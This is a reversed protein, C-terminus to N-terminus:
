SAQAPRAGLAQNRNEGSNIVPIRRMGLAAQTFFGRAPVPLSIDCQSSIPGTAGIPHASLRKAHQSERGQGPRRAWSDTSPVQRTELPELGRITM